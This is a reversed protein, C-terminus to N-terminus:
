SGGGPKRPERTVSRRGRRPKKPEEALPGFVTRLFNSRFTQVLGAIRKGADKVFAQANERSNALAECDIPAYRADVHLGNIRGKYRDGAFEIERTKPDPIQSFKMGDTAAREEDTLELGLKEAVDHIKMRNLAKLRQEIGKTIGQMTKDTVIHVLGDEDTYAPKVLAIRFEGGGFHSFHFDDTSLGAGKQERAIVDKAIYQLIANANDHGLVNNLGGLNHFALSIMFPHLDKVDDTSLGARKLGAKVQPDNPDLQERYTISDQAYIQVFRAMEDPMLAGTSPDVQTLSKISNMFYREETASLEIGKRQLYDKAYALRRQEPTSFLPLNLHSVDPDIIDFDNFDKKDQTQSVLLTKLTDQIYAKQEEFNPNPASDTARVAIRQEGIATKRGKIRNDLVSILSKPEVIRKMAQMIFAAGFGKKVPDNPHKLHPHDLLGLERMHREINAEIIASVEKEEDEELGSIILRLEDGGSRIPVVKIPHERGSRQNYEHLDALIQQAIIKAVADTYQYAETEDVQSVDVGLSDAIKQRFLTNTGGMNSYDVEMITMPKGTERAYLHGLASTIVTHEKGLYGTMPDPKQKEQEIQALLAHYEPPADPTYRKILALYTESPTLFEGYEAWIEKLDEIVQEVSHPAHSTDSAHESETAVFQQLWVELEKGGFISEEISM